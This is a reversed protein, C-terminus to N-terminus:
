EETGSLALIDSRNGFVDLIRQAAPVVVSIITGVKQLVGLAVFLRSKM